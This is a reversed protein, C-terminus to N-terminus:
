ISSRLEDLTAMSAETRVADTLFQETKAKLADREEPPFERYAWRKTYITERGEIVDCINFGIIPLFRTNITYSVTESM